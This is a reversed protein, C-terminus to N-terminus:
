IDEESLWSAFDFLIDSNNPVVWYADYEVESYERYYRPIKRPNLNLKGNDMLYEYIKICDETYDEDCYLTNPDYNWNFAKM